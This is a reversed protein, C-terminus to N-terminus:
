GAVDFRCIGNKQLRNTTSWIRALLTEDTGMGMEGDLPTDTGGRDADAYFSATTSSVDASAM